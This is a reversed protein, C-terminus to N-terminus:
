RNPSPTDQERISSPTMMWMAWIPPTAAVSCVKRKRTGSIWRQSWNRGMEMDWSPYRTATPRVRKGQNRSWTPSSTVM